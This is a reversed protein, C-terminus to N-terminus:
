LSVYVRLKAIHRINIKYLSFITTDRHRIRPRYLMWVQLTNPQSKPLLVNEQLIPKGMKRTQNTFHPFNYERPHFGNEKKCLPKSFFAVNDEIWWRGWERIDEGDMMYEGKKNIINRKEKVKRTLFWVLFCIYFHILKQLINKMFFGKGNFIYETM